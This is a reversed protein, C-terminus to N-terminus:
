DSQHVQDLTAKVFANARAFVAATRAKSRKLSERGEENLFHRLGADRLKLAHLLVPQEAVRNSNINIQRKLLVCASVDRPGDDDADEEGAALPLAAEGAQLQAPAPAPATGLELQVLAEQLPARPHDAAQAAGAEGQPQQKGGGGGRLVEAAGQRNAEQLCPETALAAGGKGQKKEQQQSQQAPAPGQECNEQLLAAASIPAVM